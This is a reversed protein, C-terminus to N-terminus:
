SSPWYIKTVTKQVYVAFPIISMRLNLIYAHVCVCITQQLVYNYM